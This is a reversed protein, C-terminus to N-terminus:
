QPWPKNAQYVQRLYALDDCSFREPQEERLKRYREFHIDKGRRGTQGTFEEILRLGDALRGAVITEDILAWQQDPLDVSVRYGEEGLYPTWLYGPRFPMFIPPRGFRAWIEDSIVLGHFSLNIIDEDLEEYERCNSAEWGALAFRFPPATRLRDYLRLGIESALRPRCLAAIAESGGMIVGVPMVSIWRDRRDCRCPVAMGNSVSIIQGAFHDAMAQTAEPSDGCEVGLEFIWAM